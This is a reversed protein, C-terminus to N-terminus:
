AKPWEKWEPDPWELKPFDGNILFEPLYDSKVDVKFGKDHAYCVAALAALDIYEMISNGAEEGLAEHWDRRLQQQELLKANFRAEDKGFVMAWLEMVPSLINLIWDAREPTYLSPETGRLADKLYTVINTDFAWIGNLFKIYPIEWPDPKNQGYRVVKEPDAEGYVKVAGIDRLIMAIYIGQLWSSFDVSANPEIQTASFPDLSPLAILYDDPKAMGHWHWTRALHSMRISDLFNQVDNEVILDYVGSGLSYRSVTTLLFPDEKLESLSRKTFKVNIKKDSEINSKDRFPHSKVVQSNKM